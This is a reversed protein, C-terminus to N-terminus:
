RDFASSSEVVVMFQVQFVQPHQHLQHLLRCIVSIYTPPLIFARACSSLASTQVKHFTDEFTKEEMQLEEDEVVQEQLKASCGIIVCTTYIVQNFICSGWMM